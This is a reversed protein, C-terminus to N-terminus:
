LKLKKTFKNITPHKDVLLDKNCSDSLIKVFAPITKFVRENELCFRRQAHLCVVFDSVLIHTRACKDSVKRKVFLM